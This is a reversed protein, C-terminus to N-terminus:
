ESASEDRFSAAYTRVIDSGATRLNFLSLWTGRLQVTERRLLPGAIHQRAWTLLWLPKAPGGYRMALKLYNRSMFLSGLLGITSGTSQGVKHRVLPDPLIMARPHRPNHRLQWDLEERYLFLDEDMLGLRTLSAASIVVSCGTIWSTEMAGSDIAIDAMRTGYNTMGVLGRRWDFDGGGFWLRDPEDEFVIWSGFFDYGPHTRALEVLKAAAMSEVITDNNLVWVYDAGRDVASRIGLNNGGAFGLNRGSDIVSVNPSAELAARADPDAVTSANDVVLIRLNDYTSARLSDVCELTDSWGNFNLVVVVLSPSAQRPEDTM